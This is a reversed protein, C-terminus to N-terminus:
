DSNKSIAKAGSQKTAYVLIDAIQVHEPRTLAYITNDAIDAATLPEFGDYVADAKAKDGLRVLSFETQVAGPSITTVRIPTGALDHRLATSYGNVAFKSANYGSGGPYAEVGAVSSMNVVHGRKREVMGPVLQRTMAMLGTVNTEIMTIHDELNAEHAKDVGLALGANNILIDVSQFESPLSGPLSKIAELDRIDLREVHVPVSFKVEIDQKLKQLRDLRRATLVLSAGAEALRWAIAEGIGSSAGTVLAVQGRINCPKYLESSDM